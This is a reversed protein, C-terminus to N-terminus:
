HRYALGLTVAGNEFHSVLEYRGFLGLWGSQIRILDLGLVGGFFAGTRTTAASEIHLGGHIGAWFRSQLQYQVFPGLDFANFTIDPMNTGTDTGPLSELGVHLGVRLSSSHEYGLEAVLNPGLVSDSVRASSTTRDITGLTGGAAVAFFFRFPAPRSTIPDALSHPTTDRYEHVFAEEPLARAQERNAAHQMAIRSAKRGVVDFARQMDEEPGSMAIAARSLDLQALVGPMQEITLDRVAKATTLDSLPPRGLDVDQEVRGAIEDASEALSTLSMLVRNRAIVFLRAATASDARVQALREALLKMAKDAQHADIRGTLVYRTSLRSEALRATLDYSAGLQDRVDGAMESLMQSAVLQLARTGADAPMAITLDVQTLDAPTAISAPELSARPSARNPAHGEWGAFLYDIWLDALAPDFNGTIILTANAPTYHEARYHVADDYSLAESAQRMLGAKVYPHDIGFMAVRWADTVNGREDIASHARRVNRIFADAGEDYRGDRVWRRLGALLYDLQNSTGRVHFTTHDTEVDVGETGGATEFLILDKLYRLDWVLARGALLAVGRKGTPEDSSGTRFVMRIDMTPVSTIPILVVDCGNALRRTKVGPVAVPVEATMPRHADNPDAWLKHPEREDVISSLAVRHGSKKAANPRLSIATARSYRLKQSLEIAEPRTLDLVGDIAAQMEANPNRGNALHAALWPDRERADEVFAYAQFLAGHQTHGFGLADLEKVDNKEFLRPLEDLVGDVTDVIHVYTDSGAAVVALGIMPARADGLEIVAARGELKSDTMAAAEALIARYRALLRPSKPIPWALVIAPDDIPVPLEVAHPKFAPQTVAPPPAAHRRAVRGLEKALAEEVRARTLNGSVVLVADETSYHEDAFACAQDRTIAGVSDLSGIVRRGYPHDDPYLAQLIAAQVEVAQERERIENQVVSRERQYEGDEISSCQLTLRTAEIALLEDLRRPQARAVFVTADLTTTANFYSTISALRTSITHAESAKDFMLHEVLHAMGARDAPDDIAGVQYRMTVQVEAARPDSVVIVRLGNQSTFTELGLGLTTERPPEPPVRTTVLCGQILACATSVAVARM